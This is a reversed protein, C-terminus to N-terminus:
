NGYNKIWEEGLKSLGNRATWLVNVEHSHPSSYLDMIQALLQSCPYYIAATLVGSDNVYSFVAALQPDSEYHGNERLMRAVAQRDDITPM